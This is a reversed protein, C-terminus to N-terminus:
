LQPSWILKQLCLDAELTVIMTPREFYGIGLAKMKSRLKLGLSSISNQFHYSHPELRRDQLSAGSAVTKFWAALSDNSIAIDGGGKDALRFPLGFLYELLRDGWECLLAKAIRDVRAVLTQM